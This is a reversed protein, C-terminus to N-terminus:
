RIASRTAASGPEPVLGAELDVGPGPPQGLRPLRGEGQDVDVRAVQGGPVLRQCDGAEVPRREPMEADAPIRLGGALAADLDPDRDRRAVCEGFRAAPDLADRACDARDHGVQNGPLPCLARALTPGPEVVGLVRADLREDRWIGDPGRGASRYGGRNSPVFKVVRVQARVAPRDPRDDLADRLTPSRKAAAWVSAWSSGVRQVAGDIRRCCGLFCRSTGSTAPQWSAMSRSRPPRSSTTSLVSGPIPPDTDARWAPQSTPADNSRCSRCHGRGLYATATIPPSYREVPSRRHVRPPRCLRLHADRRGPRALKPRLNPTDIARGRGRLRLGAVQHSQRLRLPNLGTHRVLGVMSLRGADIDAGIRPWETERSRRAAHEPGRAGMWWFRLPVRLWDLSQVQRRVLSQFLPSGNAPAVTDSPIPLGAEFRERVYWAMGGCLGASADGIGIWRPDLPGLRITPGPPFRNAFHLGNTSPLFGPVANSEVM